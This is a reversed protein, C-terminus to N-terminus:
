LWIHRARGEGKPPESVVFALQTGGPSFQLDSITRLNLSTEPTLLKAADTKPAEQALLPEALITLIYLARVCFRRNM